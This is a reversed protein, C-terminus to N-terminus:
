QSKDETKPTLFSSRRDKKVTICSALSNSIGLRKAEKMDEFKYLYHDFQAKAMKSGKSRKSGDWTCEGLQMLVVGRLDVDNISMAGTVIYRPYRVGM